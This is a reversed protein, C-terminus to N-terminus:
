QLLAPSAEIGAQAGVEDTGDWRGHGGDHGKLVQLLREELILLVPLRLQLSPIGQSISTPCDRIAISLPPRVGASIESEALMM